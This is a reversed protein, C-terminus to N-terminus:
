SSRSSKWFELLMIFPTILTGMILKKAWNLIPEKILRKEKYGSSDAELNIFHRESLGLVVVGAIELESERSFYNKQSLERLFLSMKVFHFSGYRLSCEMLMLSLLDEILSALSFSNDTELKKLYEEIKEQQHNIVAKKLQSDM